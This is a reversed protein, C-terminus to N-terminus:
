KGAQKRLDAMAKKVLAHLVPDTQKLRVLECDKHSEPLGLVNAAIKEAKDVLDMPTVKEGMPVNNLNHDTFNMTVDQQQHPCVGGNRAKAVNCNACLVQFNPPYGNQQLWRYFRTANYSKFTRRHESGDNNLHDIQLCEQM